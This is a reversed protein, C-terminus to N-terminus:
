AGGGEARFAALVRGCLAHVESSATGDRVMEIGKEVGRAEAAAVEADQERLRDIADRWVGRVQELTMVEINAYADRLSAARDNVM